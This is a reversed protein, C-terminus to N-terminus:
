IHDPDAERPNLPRHVRFGVVSFITMRQNDDSFRVCFTHYLPSLLSYDDLTHKTKTRDRASSDPLRREVLIATLNLSTLLSRCADDPKAVKDLM